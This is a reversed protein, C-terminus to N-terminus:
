KSTESSHSLAKRAANFHEVSFPQIRPSPNGPHPLCIEVTRGEVAGFKDALDAFPRLAEDKEANSRQLAEHQDSYFEHARELEARIYDQWWDVDGGGGDGLLGADYRAVLGDTQVPPRAANMGDRYAEAYLDAIDFREIPNAAEMARYITEVLARDEEANRIGIERDLAELGAEIMADTVDTPKDM